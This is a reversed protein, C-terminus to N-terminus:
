ADRPEQRKECADHLTSQGNRRLLWGSFVEAYVSVHYGYEDDWRKGGVPIKRFPIRHDMCYLRLHDSCAKYASEPLQRQLKEVYVYEAVTLYQQADLAMDAKSEARTATAEARIARQETRDLQVAMDIIAQLAQNQVAPATPQGYSGTKRIQPLVEAYIWQQFDEAEKKRSRMILRYLGPESVILMVQPRGTVDSLTLDDKEHDKLRACARSVNPLALAACVDAAVWWTSGDDHQMTRVAHNHYAFPILDPM